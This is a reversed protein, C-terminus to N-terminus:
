LIKFWNLIDAEKESRLELEYTTHSTQFKLLLRTSYPFKVKTRTVSQLQTLDLCRVPTPRPNPLSMRAVKPQFLQDKFAPRWWSIKGEKIEFWRVNWRMRSKGARKQLYGERKAAGLPGDPHLALEEKKIPQQWMPAKWEFEAADDMKHRQVAIAAMPSCASCNGM